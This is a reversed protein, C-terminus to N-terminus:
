NSITDVDLKNARDSLAFCSDSDAPQLYNNGHFECFRPIDSNRIWIGLGNAFHLVLWDAAPCGSQSVTKPELSLGVGRYFSTEFTRNTLQRTGQGVRGM